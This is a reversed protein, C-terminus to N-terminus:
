DLYARGANHLLTCLYKCGKTCEVTNKLRKAKVSKQDAFVAAADAKGSVYAIVGVAAANCLYLEFDATEQEANEFHNFWAANGAEFTVKKVKAGTASLYESLKDTWTVFLEDAVPTVILLKKAGAAKALAAFNTQADEDDACVVDWQEAPLIDKVTKIRPDVLYVVFLVAVGLAAGVVAGLAAYLLMSPAQNTKLAGEEFKYDQKIESVSIVDSYSEEAFEPHKELVNKRANELYLSVVRKALERDAETQADYAFSVTVADTAAEITLYKYFSESKKEASLKPYLSSQLAAYTDAAVEPARATEIVQSLQRTYLYYDGETLEAGVSQQLAAYESVNLRIAGTYKELNTVTTVKTPLMVGVGVGLASCLIIVLIYRWAYKFFYGFSFEKEEM